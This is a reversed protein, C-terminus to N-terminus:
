RALADVKILTRHLDPKLDLDAYEPEDRPVPSLPALDADLEDRLSRPTLFLPSVPYVQKRSPHFKVDDIARLDTKSDVLKPVIHSSSRRLPPLSLVQLCTLPM